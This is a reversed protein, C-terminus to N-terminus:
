SMPNICFTRELSENGDALIACVVVCYPVMVQGLPISNHVATYWFKDHSSYIRFKNGDVCANARFERSTSIFGKYLSDLM